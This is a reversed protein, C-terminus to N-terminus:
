DDQSPRDISLSPEDTLGQRPRKVTATVVLVPNKSGSDHRTQPQMKRLVNPQLLSCLHGDRAANSVEVYVGCAAEECLM